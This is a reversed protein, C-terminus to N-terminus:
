LKFRKKIEEGEIHEDRGELEDINVVGRIKVLDNILDRALIKRNLMVTIDAYHNPSVSKDYKAIELDLIQMNSEVIYKLVNNLTETHEYELMLQISTENSMIRNEIKSFFTEAILVMLTGLIAVEYYGAGCALGIIASTWLGAATTLGKVHKKKTVIISGAGIFGIGAVVQAGLRGIDTYQHMVSFLYCGTLMDIAAGICILIHTRLGAPRLKQLREIGILGGCICALVLRLASSLLTVDRFQDFASLM